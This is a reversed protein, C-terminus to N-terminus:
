VSDHLARFAALTYRANFGFAHTLGFNVRTEEPTVEVIRYRRAGVTSRGTVVVSSSFLSGIRDAINYAWSLESGERSEDYVYHAPCFLIRM